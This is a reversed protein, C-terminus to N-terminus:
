PLAKRGSDTPPACNSANSGAILCQVRLRLADHRRQGIIAGDRRCCRGAVPSDGLVLHLVGTTMNRM